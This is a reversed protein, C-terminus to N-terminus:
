LTWQALRVVFVAVGLVVLALAHRRSVVARLVWGTYAARLAFPPILVGGLLWLWAHRLERRALLERRSTGAPLAVSEAM